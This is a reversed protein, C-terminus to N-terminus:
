IEVKDTFNPLPFLKITKVSLHEVASGPPGAPTANGQRYHM